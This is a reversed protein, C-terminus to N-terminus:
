QPDCSFTVLPTGFGGLIKSTAARYQVVVPDNWVLQRSSNPANPNETDKDSYSQAIVNPSISHSAYPREKKLSNAQWVNHQMMRSVGPTQRRSTIRQYHSQWRRVNINARTSDAFDRCETQSGGRREQQKDKRSINEKEREWIYM